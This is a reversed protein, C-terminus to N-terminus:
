RKEIIYVKDNVRAREPLKITCKQKSNCSDVEKEDMVIKEINQYIIGTTKGTIMMLDGVSIKKSEVLIEAVNNKNFFHVIKGVLVKKTTAKSGYTGSWEGLRKGLYYGREWFGRNFVKKLSKTLDKTLNENYKKKYVADVADKYAKTVTYVYEPGRARGEIKFISVGAEILKDVMTITSLDKPSMIYNNDIELEDGTEIDTVKYRRRCTQLCAGRNASYNYQALSMYCKGSVAVCLAGHVFVEVEILKGSM